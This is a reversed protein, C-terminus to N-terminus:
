LGMLPTIRRVAVRRNLEEPGATAIRLHREGYGQVILNEPPIGFFEILALAVSEARRDSLALNYAASGTADTYGEVLFVERPNDAILRAMIRGVQSLKAAETARVSARNTDFTIPQPSLIPLLERVEQVERIQRLTFFRNQERADAEADRLLALALDPDTRDTLLLERRRPQPLVTVDVPELDRMDNVLEIVTGDRLIRERWLVRGTADRITVIQTGDARTWRTRTSGDSYREIRRDAGEERLIVDDDRWVEYGGDDRQVIVREDSRAVVRSQNVIMGVALAGLAVLGARELDRRDDARTQAAEDGLAVQSGFEDASSRIDAASVAGEIVAEAPTETGQMALPAPEADTGPQDTVSSLVGVAAVIEPDQLLRDLQTQLAEGIPAVADAPAVFDEAPSTEVILEPAEDAPPEAPVDGPAEAPVDGPPDAPVDGPAQSPVDGPAIEPADAPENSGPTRQAAEAELAARLRAEDEADSAEVPPEATEADSLDLQVFAERTQVLMARAQQMLVSDAFVVGPDDFLRECRVPALDAACEGILARLDQCETLAPTQVCTEVPAAFMALVDPTGISSQAGGTVPAMALCLGLATTAYFDSHTM